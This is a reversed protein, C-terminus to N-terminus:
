WESLSDGLLRLYINPANQERETLEGLREKEGEINWKVGVTPNIPDNIKYRSCNKKRKGPELSICM